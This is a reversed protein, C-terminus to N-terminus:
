REPIRRPLTPVVGVEPQYEHSRDNLPHGAFPEVRGDSTEHRPREPHRGGPEPRDVKDRRHGIPVTVVDLLRHDAVALRIWDSEISGNWGPPALVPHAPLHTVAVSKVCHAPDRAM